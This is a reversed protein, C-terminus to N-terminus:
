LSAEMNQGAFYIINTHGITLTNGDILTAAKIRHGEVFSGNTSALDRAVVQNGNRTFELHRRSVGPEAVTIDAEAGRGVVTVPAKLLYKKEGIVLMPLNQVNESTGAVPAGSGAVTTAEIWVPAGPLNEEPQFSIKLAGVFTYGQSFAYNQATNSLEQALAQEGWSKISEYDTESLHLAFENPVVVRERSIMVAKADLTEKLVQILEVPKLESAFAKSFPANVAQELRKEFRDFIGM